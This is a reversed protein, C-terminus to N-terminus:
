ESAYAESDFGYGLSVTRHSTWRWSLTAGAAARGLRDREREASARVNDDHSAGVQIRPALVLRGQRSAPAAAGGQAEAALSWSAPWALVVAALVFALRRPM